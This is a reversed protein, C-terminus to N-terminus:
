SMARPRPRLTSWGRLRAFVTVTSHDETSPTQLIGPRMFGRRSKLQARRQRWSRGPRRSRSCSRRSRGRSGPAARCAPRRRLCAAGPLRVSTWRRRSRWAPRPRRCGRRGSRRLVPLRLPQAFAFRDVECLFDFRPQALAAAGEELPQFAFVEGAGAHDDFRGVGFRRLREDVLVVFGLFAPRDAQDAVEEDDGFVLLEELFDFFGGFAFREGVFVGEGLRDRCGGVAAEGVDVDVDALQDVLVAALDVRRRALGQLVGADVRAFRGRDGADHGAGFLDRDLQAAVEAALFRRGAVGRAQEAFQGAAGEGAEGDAAEAFLQLFSISLRSSSPMGPVTGGFWSFFPRFCSPISMSPTDPESWSAATKALPTLLLLRPPASTSLVLPESAVLVTALM